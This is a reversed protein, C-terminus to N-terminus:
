AYPGPGPHHAHLAEIMAVATGYRNWADGRAESPGPQSSLRFELAQGAEAALRELHPPDVTARPGSALRLGLEADLETQLQGAWTRAVDPPLGAAIRAFAGAQGAAMRHLGGQHASSQRHRFQERFVEEAHIIKVHM